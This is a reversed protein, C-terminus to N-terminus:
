LPSVGGGFISKGAARQSDLTRVFFCDEPYIKLEVDYKSMYGLMAATIVSQPYKYKPLQRTKARRNVLDAAEIKKGLSPASRMECSDLNTVFATPVDAGNEYMIGTGTIVHCVGPYGGAFNTLYPAFLFFRIGNAIYNKAIESIISFPPNDVVVCNPPYDYREYDGGPWFPRIIPVDEGIDYEERVWELVAQYVNEPTYCDDTTKKPKFKELFAKYEEDVEELGLQRELEAM